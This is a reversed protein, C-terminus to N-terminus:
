PHVDGEGVGEEFEEPHEQVYAHMRDVEEAAERLAIADEDVYSVAEEPKLEVPTEPLPAIRELADAIRALERNHRRWAGIWETFLSM